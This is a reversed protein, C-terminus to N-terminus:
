NYYNDKLEGLFKTDWPQKSKRNSNQRTIKKIRSFLKEVNTSYIDYSENDKLWNSIYTIESYSPSTNIEYDLNIESHNEFFDFVKDLENIYKRSHNINYNSIGNRFKHKYLPIRIEVFGGTANCLLGIVSDSSKSVQPAIDIMKLANTNVVTNYTASSDFFKIENDIMFSTIISRKFKNYNLIKLFIELKVIDLSDDPDCIKVLDPLVEKKSYEKISSIKSEGYRSIKFDTKYKRFLEEENNNFPVDSIFIFNIDTFTKSYKLWREIDLLDSNHLTILFEISTTEPKLYDFNNFKCRYEKWLERAESMLLVETLSLDGPGKSYTNPDFNEWQKNKSIFHYAKYESVNELSNYNPWEERALNMEFFGEHIELISNLIDQDALKIKDFYNEYFKLVKKSFREKRMNNLPLHIAGVNYYSYLNKTNRYIKVLTSPWETKPNWSKAYAKDPDFKSLLEVIDGKHVIDNDVYYTSYDDIIEHLFLRINTSSTVHELNSDIKPFTDKNIFIAVLNTQLNLLKIKEIILDRLDECDHFIANIKLIKRNSSQSLIMLSNILLEKWQNKDSIMSISPINSSLYYDNILNNRSILNIHFLRKLFIIKNDLLIEKEFIKKIYKFDFLSIIDRVNIRNNSYLIELSEVLFKFPSLFENLLFFDIPSFDYFLKDVYFKSTEYDNSIFYSYLSNIQSSTTHFDINSNKIIQVTDLKNDGIIEFNNNFDLSSFNKIKDYFSESLLGHNEIISFHTTKVNKIVEKISDFGNKNDIKNIQKYRSDEFNFFVNDLNNDIILIYHFGNSLFNNIEKEIKEQRNWDMNYFRRIFTINKDM